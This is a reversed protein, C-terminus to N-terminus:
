VVHMCRGLGKFLTCVGGWVKLCRAYVAGFRLVVHMCRGLGKFLTCVGGCVMLCRACM